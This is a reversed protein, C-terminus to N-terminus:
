ALGRQPSLPMIYVKVHAEGRFGWKNRLLIGLDHVEGGGAVSKMALPCMDLMLVGEHRLQLYGQHLVPLPAGDLLLSAEKVPALGAYVPIQLQWHEDPQIPGFEGATSYGIAAPGVTGKMHSVDVRPMLLIGCILVCIAAFVGIIIFRVFRRRYLVTLINM